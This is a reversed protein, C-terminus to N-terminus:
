MKYAFIIEDDQLNSVTIFNLRDFLQPANNNKKPTIARMRKLGMNYKGFTIASKLTANVSVKRKFQQLLVHGLEGAKNHFGCYYGVLGMLLLQQSTHLTREIANRWKYENIINM